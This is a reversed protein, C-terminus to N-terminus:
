KLKWEKELRAIDNLIFQLPPSITSGYVFTRARCLECFTDESLHPELSYYDKHRELYVAAKIKNKDEDQKKIVENVMNRWKDINDRKQKKNNYSKLDHIISFISAVFFFFLSLKLLGPIKCEFMGIFWSDPIILFMSTIILVFM